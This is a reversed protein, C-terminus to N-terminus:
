SMIKKQAYYAILASEARGDDRKRLFLEKYEPFTIKALDLSDKKNSSLGLAVKWNNPPVRLTPIDLSDLVGLLKGYHLGFTFASTVGDRPMSHVEEIICFRIIKLHPKLFKSLKLADVEKKNMQKKLPIDFITLNDNLLLSVAGTNGPDIGIIM